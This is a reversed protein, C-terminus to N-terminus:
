IYLNSNSQQRFNVLLNKKIGEIFAVFHQSIGKTKSNKIMSRSQTKINAKIGIARKILNSWKSTDNRDNIALEKKTQIDEKLRNHDYDREHDNTCFLIYKLLQM